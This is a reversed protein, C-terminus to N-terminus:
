DRTRFLTGIVAEAERFQKEKVVTEEETGMRRGRQAAMLAQRQVLEGYPWLEDPQFGAWGLFTCPPNCPLKSFTTPNSFLIRTQRVEFM